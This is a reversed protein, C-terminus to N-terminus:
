KTINKVKEKRKKKTKKHHMPKHQMQEASQLGAMMRPPLYLPDMQEGIRKTRSKKLKQIEYNESQM